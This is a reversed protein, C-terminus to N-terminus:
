EGMQEILVKYASRVLKECDSEKQDMIEDVMSFIIYDTPENKILTYGEPIHINLVCAFDVALQSWQPDDGEWGILGDGAFDEVMENTIKPLSTTVYKFPKLEEIM